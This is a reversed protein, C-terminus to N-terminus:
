RLRVGTLSCFEHKISWKFTYIFGIQNFKVKVRIALRRGNSSKKPTEVCMCVSLLTQKAVRKQKTYLHYPVVSLLIQYVTKKGKQLWFKFVHKYGLPLSDSFAFHNFFICTCCIFIYEQNKNRSSCQMVCFLRFVLNLATTFPCSSSNKHRSPLSNCYVLNKYLFILIIFFLYRIQVTFLNITSQFYV